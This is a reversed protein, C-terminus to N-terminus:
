KKESEKIPREGTAAELVNITISKKESQKNSLAEQIMKLSTTLGADKLADDYFAELEERVHDLVAKFQENERMTDALQAAM